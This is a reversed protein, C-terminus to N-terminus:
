NVITVAKRSFEPGTLCKTVIFHAVDARSVMGGGLGREAVQYKQTEPGDALGGPRVIVFDCSSEVGFDKVVQAEQINKDAIASKIITNVLIWTIWGLDAYSDGVGMSTVVILRKVEPCASKIVDDILLQGKSCIDRNEPRGGLSVICLDSGAICKTLDDKNLANGIVKTLLQNDKDNFLSKDSRMLVSVSHGLDLLRKTIEVGTKGTAGIVSIKM